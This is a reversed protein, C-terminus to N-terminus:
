DSYIPAVFNTYSCNLSFSQLFTFKHFQITPKIKVQFLFVLVYQALRHENVNNTVINKWEEKVKLLMTMLLGFNIATTNIIFLSTQLRACGKLTSRMPCDRSLDLQGNALFDAPISNMCIRYKLYVIQPRVRAVLLMYNFAVILECLGLSYCEIICVLLRYIM